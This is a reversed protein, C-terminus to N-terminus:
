AAHKAQAACSSWVPCIITAARQWTVFRRLSRSTKSVRSSSSDSTEHTRASYLRRRVFFHVPGQREAEARTSAQQKRRAARPHRGGTGPRYLDEPLRTNAPQLVCQWANSAPNPGPSNGFYEALIVETGLRVAFMAHICPITQKRQSRHGCTCVACGLVILRLRRQASNASADADKPAAAAACTGGGPGGGNGGNGGSAGGAKGGGGGTSTAWIPSSPRLLRRRCFAAFQWSENPACRRRSKNCSLNSCIYVCRTSGCTCFM